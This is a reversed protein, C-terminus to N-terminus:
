SNPVSHPLGTQLRCVGTCHDSHTFGAREARCVRECRREGTQALRYRYQLPRTTNVVTNLARPSPFYLSNSVEATVALLRGLQFRVCACAVRTERERIREAKARGRERRERQENRRSGGERERETGDSEGGRQRRWTWQEREREREREFLQTNYVHIGKFSIRINRCM